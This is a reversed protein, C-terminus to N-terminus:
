RPAVQEELAGIHDLANSVLFGWLAHVWGM